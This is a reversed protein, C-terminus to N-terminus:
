REKSVIDLNRFWVSGQVISESASRADLVLSVLQAKCGNTPVTVAFEFNTWTSAAGLLMPGAGLQSKETLCEMRWVLGRLGTVNGRWRGKFTYDGPQLLILQTVPNFTTRSGQFEINLGQSGGESPGSVVKIGYNSGLPVKWDFPLGSPPLEFNRNNLHGTLELQAPDLLQLWIGSADDYLQKEILFDLYPGIENAQPPSGTGKLELLLEGPTHINTISKPLLQFFLFRWPPNNALLKTVFSRGAPREAIVALAPVLYQAFQPRIRLLVDANAAAEEFRGRLLASQLLWLLAGSEHMSRRAAASMLEHTRKEDHLLDATGGLLRFAKANLPDARIAREALDAAIARSTEDFAPAGPPAQIGGLTAVQKGTVPPATKPDCADTAASRRAEPDIATAPKRKAWDLCKEALRVLAAPQGPRLSLAQQPSVDVLYAALSHTVILWALVGGATLAVAGRLINTLSFAATSHPERQEFDVDAALQASEHEDGPPAQENPPNGTWVM